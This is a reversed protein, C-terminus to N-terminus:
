WWTKRDKLAPLMGLSMRASLSKLTRRDEEDLHAEELARDPDRLFDERIAADRYLHQVFQVVSNQKSAM